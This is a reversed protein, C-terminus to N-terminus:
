FCNALTAIIMPAKDILWDIAEGGDKVLKLAEITKTGGEKASDAFRELRDLASRRQEPEAQQLDALARRIMELERLALKRVTEDDVEIELRDEIRGLEKNLQKAQEIYVTKDGLTVDSMQGNEQYIIRDGHFHIERAQQERQEKPMIKLVESLLFKGHKGRYYREGDRELALLDLYDARPGDEGDRLIGNMPLGVWEQYRLKPMPKLLSKFEDYLVSFYRAADAGRLWISLRRRHYDAQVLAEAQYNGSKLRVGNQWVLGEIIEGHRRVIFVTMLHRPLLGEFDFDFALAQTKDFALDAPRDSPLLDPLMYSDPKNPVRYCIEFQEMAELIFGAKDAPYNLSHGQEDELKAHKLIEVVAKKAVQGGGQKAADAYLVSYVGYTLWCPNLVYGDLTPINRFHVLQGLKDLLDLLWDRDLGGSQTIQQEDCLQQYCGASLFADQRALAQLQEFVRFHAATLLIQHTGIAGLQSALAEQFIQFQKQHSDRYHLCSLPYYGVINPYREKLDNMDLNVAALEVKNGVLLVPADGGFARVHELWYEAQQNANIEARGDLVLVYVCKERLFFKHTAHAMVQGGFDWLHAKIDSGPLPWERIAVGPTMAEKGEVVEEGHLARILSTKGAFGYGIFIARVRNLPILADGVTLSKLYANVAAPGQELLAQDLLFARELLEWNIPKGDLRDRLWDAWWDFGQGYNTLAALFRRYLAEYSAIGAKEDVSLDKNTTLTTKDVGPILSRQLYAQAACHRDLGALEELLSKGSNFGHRQTASAVNTALNEADSGTCAIAAANIIAYTANYAALDGNAADFCAVYALATDVAYDTALNNKLNPVTYAAQVIRLVTLLHVARKEQPWYDLFGPTRGLLCPLVMMAARAAFAARLSAPLQNLCKRIEERDTTQM